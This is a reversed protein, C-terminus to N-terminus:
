SLVEQTTLIPINTPTETLICQSPFTNYDTLLTEIKGKVFNIMIKELIDLMSMQKKHSVLCKSSDKYKM